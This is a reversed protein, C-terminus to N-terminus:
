SNRWNKRAVPKEASYKMVTVLVRGPGCEIANKIVAVFKRQRRFVLVLSILFRRGTFTSSDIM